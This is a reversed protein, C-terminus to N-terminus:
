AVAILLARLGHKACRCATLDKRTRAHELGASCGAPAPPWRVVRPQEMIHSPKRSINPRSCRREAVISSVTAEEPANPWFGAVALRDYLRDRTTGALVVM